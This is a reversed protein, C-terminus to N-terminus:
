ATVLAVALAERLAAADLRPGFAPQGHIFRRGESLPGVDVTDFAIEDSFSAVLRKAVVDDGAIPIARRNSSGGPQTDVVKMGERAEPEGFDAVDPANYTKLVAAKM